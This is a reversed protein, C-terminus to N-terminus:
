HSEKSKDKALPTYTYSVPGSAFYDIWGNHIYVVIDIKQQIKVKSAYSYSEGYSSNYFQVNKVNWLQKLRRYYGSFLIKKNNLFSLENLQKATFEETNSVNAYLANSQGLNLTPTPALDDVIVILRNSQGVAVSDAYSVTLDGVVNSENIYLSPGSWSILEMRRAPIPNHDSVALRLKNLQGIDVSSSPGRASVGAGNRQDINTYPSPALKPGPRSVAELSPPAACGASVLMLLLLAATHRGSIM